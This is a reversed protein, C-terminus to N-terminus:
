FNLGKKIRVTLYFIFIIIKIFYYFNFNFYLKVWISFNLSNIFAFKESTDAIILTLGLSSCYDNADPWFMQLTPNYFFWEGTLNNQIYNNNGCNKISSRIFFFLDFYIYVYTVPFKFLKFENKNKYFEAFIPM